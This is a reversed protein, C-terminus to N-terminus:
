MSRVWVKAGDYGLEIRQDGFAYVLTRGSEDITRLRFEPRELNGATRYREIIERARRVDTSAAAALREADGKRIVDILQRMVTHAQPAADLIDNGVRTLADQEVRLTVHQGTRGTLRYSYPETMEAATIGRLASSIDNLGTILSDPGQRYTGLERFLAPDHAQLTRRFLDVIRDAEARTLPAPRPLQIRLRAEDRPPNSFLVRAEASGAAGGALATVFLCRSEDGGMGIDTEISFTGNARSVTQFKAASPRCQEDGVTVTVGAGAVLEGRTDVVTGSVLATREPRPPM